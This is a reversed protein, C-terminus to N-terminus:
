SMHSHIETVCQRTVISYFKVSVDARFLDFM